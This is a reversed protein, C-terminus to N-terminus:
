HVQIEIKKASRKPVTINLLGHSIHAEIGDTDISDRFRFSRFIGLEKKHNNFLSTYGEPQKSEKKAEIKLTNTTASLEINEESFGVADIQLLYHNGGDYIDARANNQTNNRVRSTRLSQFM